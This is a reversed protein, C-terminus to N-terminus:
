DTAARSAHTGHAGHGPRGRRRPPRRRTGESRHATPELLCRPTSTGQAEFSLRSREELPLVAADRRHKGATGAVGSVFVAAASASPAPDWRDAPDAPILGRPPHPTHTVRPLTSARPTAQSGRRWPPHRQQPGLASRPDGAQTIPSGRAAGPPGQQGLRGRDEGM